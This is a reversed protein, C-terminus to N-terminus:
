AIQLCALIVLALLGAMIVFSGIRILCEQRYRRKKEQLTAQKIKTAFRNGQNILDINAQRLTFRNVPKEISYLGANGEVQYLTTWWTRMTKVPSNVCMLNGGAIKIMSYAANAASDESRYWATAFQESEELQEDMTLVFQKQTIMFETGLIRANEFTELPQTAEKEQMAPM